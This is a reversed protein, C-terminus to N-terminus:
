IRYFWKEGERRGMRRRRGGGHIVSFPSINMNSIDIANVSTSSSRTCCIQQQSKIGKLGGVQEMEGIVRSKAKFIKDQNKTNAIGWSLLCPSEKLDEKEKGM